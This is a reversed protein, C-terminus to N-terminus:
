FGTTFARRRNKPTRGGLAACEADLRIIEADLENLKASRFVVEDDGFRTRVEAEGAVLRLRVKRLYVLVACPDNIDIADVSAM